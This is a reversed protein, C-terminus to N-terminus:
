WTLWNILCRRITSCIREHWVILWLSRNMDSLYDSIYFINKVYVYINWAWLGNWILLGYCVHYVKKTVFIILTNMIYKSMIVDTLTTNCIDVTHWTFWLSFLSLKRYIFNPTIQWVQKRATKRGNIVKTM